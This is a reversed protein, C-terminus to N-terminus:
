TRSTTTKAKQAPTHTIQRYLLYAIRTLGNLILLLIITLTIYGISLYLKTPLYTSTSDAVLFMVSLLLLTVGEIANVGRYVGDVEVPNISGMVLTGVHLTILGMVCFFPSM